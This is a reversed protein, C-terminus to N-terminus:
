SESGRGDRESSRRDRSTPVARALEVSDTGDIEALRVAV